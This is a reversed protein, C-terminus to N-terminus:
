LNMYLQKCFRNVNDLLNILPSAGWQRPHTLVEIIPEGNNIANKVDNVFNVRDHDHIRVTCKSKYGEDYADILIGLKDLVPRSAIIKNDIELKRNVYEGHSSVTLVPVGYKKRIKEVNEIFMSQFDELHKLVEEKRRERHKYCWTAIEEYHYTAEGGNKEIEAMLKKNVTNKRFYSSCRAGNNIEAKLMERQIRNAATDVDRRLVLYKNEPNIITLQAFSRLTHFEYGNERALALIEEYENVHIPMFFDAYIRKKINM